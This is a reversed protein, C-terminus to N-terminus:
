NVPKPNIIQIPNGEKDLLYEASCFRCIAYYPDGNDDYGVIWYDAGCSYCYFNMSKPESYYVRLISASAYSLTTFSVLAVIYIAMFRIAKFFKKM